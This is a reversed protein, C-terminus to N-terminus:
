NARRVCFIRRRYYDDDFSSVIVGSSEAAHLFQHQDLILGVHDIDGGNIRFFVLDGPFVSGPSVALTAKYIGRVARPLKLGLVQGYVARILGSCDIGEITQGGYKYPTGLFGRATAILQDRQAPTLSDATPHYAPASCGILLAFVVSILLYRGM